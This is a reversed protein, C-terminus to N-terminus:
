SNSHAENPLLEVVIGLLDRLDFPKPLYRDVRHQRLESRTLRSSTIVIVRPHASPRLARIDSLLSWGSGDPLIMDLVLLDPYRRRAITLGAAITHATHAEYGAQELAMLVAVALTTDDEVVLVTQRPM